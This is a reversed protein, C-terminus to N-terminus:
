PTRDNPVAFSHKREDPVAYEIDSEVAIRAALAHSDMDSAVVVHIRDSIDSGPTLAIGLRSALTTTRLAQTGAATMAQVKM